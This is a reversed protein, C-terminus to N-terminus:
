IGKFLPPRKEALAQLAERFDETRGARAMGYSEREIVTEVTETAAALLNQKILRNAVPSGSALRRALAMTEDMLGDEPVVKGVVGLRLLEAADVREGLFMLERAKTPGVLRHLYYTIGGDGPLGIKAYATAMFASESAIRFDCALAYAAGMGAAAGRWMAITPKPMTHMLGVAERVAKDLQPWTVGNIANLADPRNITIIRIGDGDQSVLVESM